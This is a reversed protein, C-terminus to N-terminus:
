DLGMFLGDFDDFPMLFLLAGMLIVFAGPEMGDVVGTRLGTSSMLPQTM